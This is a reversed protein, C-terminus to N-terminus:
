PAPTLSAQEDKLRSLRSRLFIIHFEIITRRQKLEHIAMAHSVGNQLEDEVLSTIQARCEKEAEELLPLHASVTDISTLSSVDVLEPQTKSTM